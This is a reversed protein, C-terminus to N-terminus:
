IDIWYFGMMQKVFKDCKKEREFHQFQKQEGFFHNQMYQKFFLKSSMQSRGFIYLISSALISSLICSFIQTM